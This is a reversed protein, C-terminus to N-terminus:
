LDFSRDDDCLAEGLSMISLKELLHVDNCMEISKNDIFYYIYKLCDDPFFNLILPNITYFVFDSDKYENLFLEASITFNYNNKILYDEIFISDLLNTLVKPKRGFYIKM